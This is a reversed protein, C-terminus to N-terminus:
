ANTVGPQRASLGDMGKLDQFMEPAEGQAMRYVLNMMNQGMIQHSQQRAALLQNSNTAQAEASGDGMSARCGASAANAVMALASWFQHNSKASHANRVASQIKGAAESNWGALAKRMQKSHNDPSHLEPRKLQRSM